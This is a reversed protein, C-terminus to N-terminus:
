NDKNKQPERKRLALSTHVVELQWLKQTGGGDLDAGEVEVARKVTLVSAGTYIEVGDRHAQALLNTNLSAKAGVNCGTMCDGCAVCANMKISYQSEPVDRM